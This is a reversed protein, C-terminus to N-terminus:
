RETHLTRKYRASVQYFRKSEAKIHKQKARESKTCRTNEKKMKMLKKKLVKETSYNKKHM